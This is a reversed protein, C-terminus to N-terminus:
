DSVNKVGKRAKKKAPGESANNENADPAARPVESGPVSYVFPGWSPRGPTKFGIMESQTTRTDNKVYKVDDKENTTTICLIARGEFELDVYIRTTSAATDPKQLTCSFAFSNTKISVRSDVVVVYKKIVKGNLLCKMVLQDKIHIQLADIHNGKQSTFTYDQM